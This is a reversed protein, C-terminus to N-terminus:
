GRKITKYIKLGIVAATLIKDAKSKKKKRVPKKISKAM